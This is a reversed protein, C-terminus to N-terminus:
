KGDVWKEFSQAMQGFVGPSAVGSDPPAGTDSIVERGNVIRVRAGLDVQSLEIKSKPRVAAR